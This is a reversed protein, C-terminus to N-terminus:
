VSQAVSSKAAKPQSYWCMHCLTPRDVTQDEKYDDAIPKGGFKTSLSKLLTRYIKAPLKILHFVTRGKQLSPSFM